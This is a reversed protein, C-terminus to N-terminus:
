DKYVCGLLVSLAEGLVDRDHDPDSHISSTEPADNVFGEAVLGDPAPPPLPTVQQLVEVKHVLDLHVVPGPMVVLAWPSLANTHSIVRFSEHLRNRMVNSPHPLEKSNLRTCQLIAVCKKAPGLHIAM